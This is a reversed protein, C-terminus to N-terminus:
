KGVLDDYEEAASWAVLLVVCVLFLVGLTALTIYVFDNM